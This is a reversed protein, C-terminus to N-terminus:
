FRVSLAGTIGYSRINSQGFAGNANITGNINGALRAKVGGTLRFVARDPTYVAGQFSSVAAANQISVSRGHNLLEYDVSARAYPLVRGSTNALRAQIGASGILQSLTQAGFTLQTSSAGNESYGDIKINEYGLSLIPGATWKGILYDHGAGMKFSAVNGSTNGTESRVATNIHLDRRIDDLDAWGYTGSAYAYLVGVGARAYASLSTLDTMFSGSENGFSTNAHTQSLAIGLGGFEYAQFDLGITVDKNETDIGNLQSSSGIKYPTYGAAGFLEWSRVAHAGQFYLREDYALQQGRMSSQMSLPLLSIQSPALLTATVADSLIRHGATSPHLGDAFLYREAGNAVTTAPTCQGASPTSCAPTTVNSLGYASPNAVIERFLTFSDFYLVSSFGQLGQKLGANFTSALQSGAATTPGTGAGFSPTLGIDPVSVVVINRAGAAQLRGLQTVFASVAPAIATPGGQFVDNAGALVTVIDNNQFFAGSALYRDIQASVSNQTLGQASPNPLTVRAGGEAYNLGGDLANPTLTMGFRNAINEVWVNGPNTTFKFRTVDGAGPLNLSKFFSTYAGGDSLSDGFVILRGFQTQANAISAFGTGFVIAWLARTLMNRM